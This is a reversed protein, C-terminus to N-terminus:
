IKVVSSQSMQITVRSGIASCIPRKRNPKRRKTEGNTAMHGGERSHRYLIPREEGPSVISVMAVMRMNTSQLAKCQWMRGWGTHRRADSSPAIHRWFRAEEFMYSLLAILHKPLAVARHYTEFTDIIKSAGHKNKCWKSLTENCKTANKHM